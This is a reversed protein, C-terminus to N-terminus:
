PVSRGEPREALDKRLFLLAEGGPQHHALDYNATLGPRIVDEVNALSRDLIILAPVADDVCRALGALAGEQRMLAESHPNIWWWYFAHPRLCGWGTFGDLVPQDADVLGNVLQMARYQYERSWYAHPIAVRGLALLLMATWFLSRSAGRHWLAALAGLCVLSLAAVDVIGYPNGIQGELVLRVVVSFSRYAGTAWAGLCVALPLWSVNRRRVSGLRARATGWLAVTMGGVLCALVPLALLHYQLYATPLLPLAAVHLCSAGIVVMEGTSAARGRTLRCVGGALGLLALGFHGPSWGTQGFLQVFFSQQVDAVDHPWTLPYVFVCRTFDALAGNAAFWAFFVTWPLLLGAAAALLGPGVSQRRSRWTIAAGALIGAALFVVKQTCLSSLALLLGAPFASGWLSRGRRQAFWASWVILCMALVDPRWEVSKEVFWPMSLLWVLGLLAARRGYLSHTLRWCGWATLLVLLFSVCRNATLLVLEPGFLRVVGAGLYYTLPGHHEFFDRYPILGRAVCYGAHLHELEDPDYLRVCLLHLRGVLLLLVLLWAAMEIPRRTGKM